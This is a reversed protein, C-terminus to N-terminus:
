AADDQLLMPQERVALGMGAWPQWRVHYAAAVAQLGQLRVASLAAVVALALPCPRIRFDVEPTSRYCHPWAPLLQLLCGPRPM